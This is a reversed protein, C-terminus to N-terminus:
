TVNAILAIVKSGGMGQNLNPAIKPTTGWKM